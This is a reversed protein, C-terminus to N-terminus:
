TSSRCFQPGVRYTFPKTKTRILLGHRLPAKLCAPVSTYPVGFKIAVDDITLEEDPNGRFYGLVRVALSGPAPTYPKAPM